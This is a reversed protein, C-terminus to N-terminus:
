LNAGEFIIQPMNQLPYGLLLIGNNKIVRKFEILTKEQDEVHEILSLCFMLDFYGTKFPLNRVDSKHFTINRLGKKLIM